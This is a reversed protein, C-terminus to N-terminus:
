AKLLLVETNSLTNDMEVQLTFPILRSRTTSPEMMGVWMDPLM